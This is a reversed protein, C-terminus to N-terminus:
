RMTPNVIPPTPTTPRTAPTIVYATAFDSHSLAVDAHPLEPKWTLPHAAGFTECSEEAWLKPAAEATVRTALPTANPVPAMTNKVAGLDFVLV